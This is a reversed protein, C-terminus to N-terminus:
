KERVIAPPRMVTRTATSESAIPVAAPVSSPMTEAYAGMTSRMKWRSM